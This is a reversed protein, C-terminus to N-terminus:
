YLEPNIPRERQVLVAAAALQLLVQLLVQLLFLTLRCPHIFLEVTPRIPGNAFHNM